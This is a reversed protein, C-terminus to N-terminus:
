GASVFEGFMALGSHPSMSDTAICLQNLWANIRACM